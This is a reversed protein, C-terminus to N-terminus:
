SLEESLLRPEGSPSRPKGSLNRRQKSLVCRALEATLEAFCEHVTADGGAGCLTEDITQWVEDDTLGFDKAGDFIAKLSPIPAEDADIEDM